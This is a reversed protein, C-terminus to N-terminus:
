GDMVPKNYWTENLEQRQKYFSIIGVDNMLNKQWPGHKRLLIPMENIAFGM